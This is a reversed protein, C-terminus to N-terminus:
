DNCEDFGMNEVFNINIMKVSNEYMKNIKRKLLVGGLYTDLKEYKFPAAGDTIEDCFIV